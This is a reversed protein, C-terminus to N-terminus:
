REALTGAERAAEERREALLEEALSRGGYRGRFAGQFRGAVTRAPVLRVSGDELELVFRDGEQLGLARRLPAPLVLRGREGLQVTYRTHSM